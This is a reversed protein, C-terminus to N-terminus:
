SGHPLLVFPADPRPNLALRARRSTEGWHDGPGQSPGFLDIFTPRENRPVLRAWPPSPRVLKASLPAPTAVRSAAWFAEPDLLGDGDGSPPAVSILGLRWLVAGDVARSLRSNIIGM